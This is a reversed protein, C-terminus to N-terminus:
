AMNRARITLCRSPMLDIGLQEGPEIGTRDEGVQATKFGLGEGVLRLEVAKLSLDGVSPELVQMRLQGDFIMSSADFEAARDLRRLFEGGSVGLATRGGIRMEGTVAAGSVQVDGVVGSAAHGAVRLEELVFHFLTLDDLLVEGAETVALDFLGGMIGEVGDAVLHGNSVQGM